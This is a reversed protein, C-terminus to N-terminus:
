VGFWHREMEFIQRYEWEELARGGWVRLLTQYGSYWNTDKTYRAGIVLDRNCTDPDNLGGACMVQVEKGNRFHHQYGGSRSVGILHWGSVSWGESYCASRTDPALSQHHHRLTLTSNPDHLYLEWGDLDVGYRGIVIQSLTTAQYFVWAAISYDESTFNLDVTDAAPGDIYTSAGNFVGLGLQSPIIPMGSSWTLNHGTLPHHLKARDMVLQGAMERYPISLLLNHDLKLKDRAGIVM